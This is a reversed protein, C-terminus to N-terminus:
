FEGLGPRLEKRGKKVHCVTCDTTTESPAVQHTVPYAYATEVFGYEGSYPVEVSAMGLRIAADWEFDGWYAGTGAKGLLRPVVMNNYRADYPTKGRHIKFPYLRSGPDDRSGNPKQLWVEARPDIEDEIAVYSMTGDYWYFEPTLDREWRFAGKKGNYSQKGDAGTIVIPKGSPDRQGAQSWDWWVKTSQGRAYVPIHCAQCSVKETHADLMRKGHPEAGHCSDCAMRPEVGAAAFMDAKHDAPLTYQRGAMQHDVTTHCDQCTLGAGDESMHVDLERSATLMSSDLDGHKVADGGGGFFHCVGCNNLSPAAVSQAVAAWDPPGYLKGGFMIPESAPYGAGKPFKEYTGTQEHCILCDVAEESTFDFSADKWGYGIHCSTCRPWNSNVNICFNNVTHAAKGILGTEDGPQRWTWHMTAHVEQAEGDHCGLCALTVDEPREFPGALEEFGSHDMRAFAAAALLLCVAALLLTFRVTM